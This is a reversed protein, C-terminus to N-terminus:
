LSDRSPLAAHYGSDRYIELIYRQDLTNEPFRFPRNLDIRSMLQRSFIILVMNRLFPSTLRTNRTSTRDIRTCEVYSSAYYPHASIERSSTGSWM